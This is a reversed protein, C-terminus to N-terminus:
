TQDERTNAKSPTVGSPALGALLRLVMAPRRGSQEARDQARVAQRVLHAGPFRIPEPPFGRTVARTLPTEALPNERELIM